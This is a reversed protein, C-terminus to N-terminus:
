RTQFDRADKRVSEPVDPRDASDLLKFVEDAFLVHM